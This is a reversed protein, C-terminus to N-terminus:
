AKGGSEALWPGLQRVGPTELAAAIARAPQGGIALDPAIESLPLMVFAREAMRPHPLVLEPSSLTAGEYWLLDIDITRPGWRERRIRGLAAEVQLCHQLLVLPEASTSVRAVINLFDPQQTLGIPATEYLSSVRELHLDPQKTLAALAAQLTAQRDGLNSGLGLYATKM